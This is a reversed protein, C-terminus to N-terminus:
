SVEPDLRDIRRTVTGHVTDPLSLQAAEINSAIRCTQDVVEIIGEDHLAHALEVSFFPHGRTRERLLASLEPGMRGAGLRAMVLRDQEDETLELLEMRQAGAAALAKVQTEDEPPQLALVFFLRPIEMAAVKVLSWSAEDLWQADDITVVIPRKAAERTLLDLLFAVRASARQPPTLLETEETEPLGLPLMANLLAARPRLEPGLAALATDRQAAESVGPPLVLLRALVGRWGLYPVANEIRDAKGALVNVGEAAVQHEFEALLFSKGIGSDAEVLALRQLGGRTPDSTSTQQATLLAALEKQRGHM